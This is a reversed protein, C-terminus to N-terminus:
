RAVRDNDAADVITHLAHGRETALATIARGMKGNGVIAVRLPM